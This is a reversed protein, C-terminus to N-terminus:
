GYIHGYLLWNYTIYEPQSFYLGVCHKDSAEMELPIMIQSNYQSDDKCWKVTHINFMAGWMIESNYFFFTNQEKYFTDKTVLHQLKRYTQPCEGLAAVGRQM